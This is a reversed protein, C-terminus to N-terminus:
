ILKSTRENINYVCRDLGIAIELVDCEIPKQGKKIQYTFDTRHSISCIEMWKDGNDVEVDLTRVSYSPLRDSDVIRTPLGIVKAFMESLQVMLATQYDNKTTKSYICQFEQQYFEKFRCHKSPQDQEKRYSKGSQWVCIPPMVNNEFLHEAYVYSGPTTEPRLVSSEGQMYVDDATYNKNLLEIPMLTPAEIQFMRWASNQNELLGKISDAFYTELYRRLKIEAENFFPLGNLNYLNLM